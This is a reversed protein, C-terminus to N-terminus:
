RKNTSRKIGSQMGSRKQAGSRKQGNKRRKAKRSERSSFKINQRRAYAIMSRLFFDRVSLVTALPLDQFHKSRDLLFEERQVTNAPFPEHAKRLLVAMQKLTIAFELNGGPDGKQKAISGQRDLELFEIWEGARIPRNAYMLEARHPTIYYTEGKYETAFGKDVEKGKININGDDDEVVFQQIVTILHKYLRIISLDDNVALMYDSPLDEDGIVAFPIMGIDQDIVASVCALYTESPEVEASDAGFMAQEAHQFDLFQSYTLDWGTYPVDIEYPTTGYTGTFIMSM